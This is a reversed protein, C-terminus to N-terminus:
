EGPRSDYSIWIKEIKIPIHNGVKQFLDNKEITRSEGPALPKEDIERGAIRYINTSYNDAGEGGEMLLIANVRYFPIEAEEYPDYNVLEFHFDDEKESHFNDEKVIRLNEIGVSGSVPIIKPISSANYIYACEEGQRFAEETVDMALGIESEEHGKQVLNKTLNQRDEEDPPDLAIKPLEPVGSNSAYINQITALGGTVLFVASLIGAALIMALVINRIHHHKEGTEYKKVTRGSSTKPEQGIPIAM